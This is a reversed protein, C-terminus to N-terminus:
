LGSACCILLSALQSLPGGAFLLWGGAEWHGEKPAAAPRLEGSSWVDSVRVSVRTRPHVGGWAQLERGQGTRPSGLALVGPTISLAATLAEQTLM